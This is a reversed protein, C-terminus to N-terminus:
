YRSFSYSLTAGYVNSDPTNKGDVVSSYFLVGSLRNSFSYFVRGGLLAWEEEVQPFKAPTFGPGGIDLSSKADVRKYDIGISLRSNVLWIGSLNTFYNEPVGEDRNRYGFEGSVGVRDSLFKGVILSVEFGDGGDGLSNIHGTEYDGAIIAGARLAVSPLGTILEDFVRWTLGISVDTLGDFSDDTTPIGPGTTFDSEAWGAQLDVAWADALAYNAVLWLTSQELDKDGPTPMKNSAAYFEDATQAVYSLSLYGSGPESLWPSGDAALAAASHLCSVGWLALIPVHMRITRMASRMIFGGKGLVRIDCKFRQRLPTAPGIGLAVSACGM